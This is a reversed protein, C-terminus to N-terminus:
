YEPGRGRLQPQPAGCVEPKMLSGFFYPSKEFKILTLNAESMIRKARSFQARLSPTWENGLVAGLGGAEQAEVVPRDESEDDEAAATLTEVTEVPAGSEPECETM